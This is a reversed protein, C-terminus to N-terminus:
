GAESLRDGLAAPLAGYPAPRPYTRGEGSDEGMTFAPSFGNRTWDVLFEIGTEVARQQLRGKELVVHWRAGGPARADFKPAQSPAGTVQWRLRAASAERERGYRLMFVSTGAGAARLSLRRSVTFDLGKPHGAVDAVVAAVARCAIAEEMAWLLETLSTMRGIILTEPEIGFHRLGAGYPLGVDQAEHALQMFLIAPRTATILGRAMGLGFGFAAGGDRREDAYIEHLLGAPARLLAQWEPEDRQGAKGTAKLLAKTEALLPRKEIAAIRARLASIRQQQGVNPM